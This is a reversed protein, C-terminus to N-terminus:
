AAVATGPRADGHVDNASVLPIPRSLMRRCQIRVTKGAAIVAAVVILFLIVTLM